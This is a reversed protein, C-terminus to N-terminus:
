MSLLHYQYEMGDTTALVLVDGDLIVIWGEPQEPDDIEGIWPEPSNCGAFGDWDTKEFPRMEARALLKLAAKTSPRSM